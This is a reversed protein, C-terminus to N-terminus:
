RWLQHGRNPVTAILLGDVTWTVTTGIKEIVVNRWAMGFTGDATIGSQNPYLALQAAPATKAGLSSTTHTLITKRITPIV